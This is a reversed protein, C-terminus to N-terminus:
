FFPNFPLSVDGLVEPHAPTGHAGDERGPLRGHRPVRRERLHRLLLPWLRHVSLGVAACGTARRHRPRRRVRPVRVPGAPRHRPRGSGPRSRSRPRRPRACQPDPARRRVRRHGRRGSRHCQYQHVAGKVNRCPVGVGHM